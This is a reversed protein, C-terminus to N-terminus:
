VGLLPFLPLSIGLVKAFILWVPITLCLAVLTDRLPRQSGYGRAVFVMLLSSALIFGISGILVIQLILGAAVWGAARLRIPEGTAEEPVELVTDRLFLIALGCLALGIAVLTPLFRPSLGSYGGQDDVFPLGAGFFAALLLVFVGVALKARTM